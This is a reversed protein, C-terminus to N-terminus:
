SWRSVPELEARFLFAASGDNPFVRLFIHDGRKEKLCPHMSPMIGEEKLWDVCKDYEDEDFRSFQPFRAKISAFEEKTFMGVYGHDVFTIFFPVKGSGWQFDDVVRKNM